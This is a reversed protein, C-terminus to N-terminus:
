CTLKQIPKRIHLIPVGTGKLTRFTLSLSPRWAVGLWGWSHRAHAQKGAAQLQVKGPGSLHPFHCPPWQKRHNGLCRYCSGLRCCFPSPGSLFAALLRPGWQRGLARACVQGSHRARLGAVWVGGSNIVMQMGASGLVLHPSRGGATSCAARGCWGLTGDPFPHGPPQQGTPGMDLDWRGKGHHRRPGENLVEMRPEPSVTRGPQWVRPCPGAPKCWSHYHRFKGFQM